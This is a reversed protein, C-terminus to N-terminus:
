KNANKVLRIHALHHKGHWDRALASANRAISQKQEPHFFSRLWQPANRNEMLYCWCKHIGGFLQVSADIQLKSDALEAWDNEKYPKIMPAKKEIVALKFRIFANTHSDALHYVPQRISWGGPRYTTKLKQDSLGTPLELLAVPFRQMGLIAEKVCANSKSEPFRFRGIPYMLSEEPM